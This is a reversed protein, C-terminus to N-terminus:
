IEQKNLLDLVSDMHNYVAERAATPDGSQIAQVITHHESLSQTRQQNVKFRKTAFLAISQRLDAYMEMLRKNDLSKVMDEHFKRDVDLFLRYDDSSSVAKQDNLHKQYQTIDFKDKNKALHEAAFGEIAKRISFLEEVDKQDFENVYFGRQPLRTVMGEKELRQVAGRLPTRSVELEKSLAAESYLKGPILDGNQILEQCKNYAFDQLSIKM